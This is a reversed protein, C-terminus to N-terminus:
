LADGVAEDGARLWKSTVERQRGEVFLEDAELQRLELYDTQDRPLPQQPLLYKMFEYASALPM